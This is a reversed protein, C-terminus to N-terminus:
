GIEFYYSVIFNYKKGSVVILGNLIDISVEDSFDDYSKTYIIQKLLDNTIFFIGYVREDQKYFDENQEYSSENETIIEASKHFNQTQEINNMFVLAEPFYKKINGWNTEFSSYIVPKVHLHKGHIGKYLMQSWLSETEVDYPVLNLKYLVGSAAFTLTDEGFIRNWVLGSQTIPCYTVAFYKDFISITYRM